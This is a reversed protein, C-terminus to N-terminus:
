KKLGYTSVVNAYASTLSSTTTCTQALEGGAEGGFSIAVNGGQAQLASIQTTFAGVASARGSTWARWVEAARGSPM